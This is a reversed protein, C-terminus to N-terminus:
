KKIEWVHGCRQCIAKTESKIKTNTKGKSAPVFLWLGATCIILTIRGLHYFLSRGRETGKMGTNVVQINVNESNCNKCLM